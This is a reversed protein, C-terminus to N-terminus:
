SSKRIAASIPTPARESAEAVAGAPTLTLRPTSRMTQEISIANLATEVLPAARSRAHKSLGTAPAAAAARGPTTCRARDPWIRCGIASRSVLRGPEAAGGPVVGTRTANAYRALVAQYEEVPFPYLQEIRVIAVDRLAPAAARRSCISTCRAAASCWAGCRRRSSTTSRM